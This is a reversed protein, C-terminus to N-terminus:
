CTLNHRGYSKIYTRVLKIKIDQLAQDLTDSVAPIPSSTMVVTSMTSKKEKAVSYKVSFPVTDAACCKRPKNIQPLEKQKSSTDASSKLMCQKSPESDSGAGFTLDRSSFVRRKQKPSTSAGISNLNESSKSKARHLAVSLFGGFHHSLQHHGQDSPMQPICSSPM